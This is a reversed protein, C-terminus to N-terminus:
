IHMQKAWGVVVTLVKQLNKQSKDACLLFELGIVEKM